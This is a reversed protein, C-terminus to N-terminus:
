AEAAEMAKLYRYVEIMNQHTAEALIRTHEEFTAAGTGFTETQM